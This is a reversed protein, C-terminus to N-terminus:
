KLCLDRLWMVEGALDTVDETGERRFSEADELGNLHAYVFWRHCGGGVFCTVEESDKKLGTSCSEHRRNRTFVGREDTTLVRTKFNNRESFWQKEKGKLRERHKVADQATGKIATNACRDPVPHHQFYKGKRM